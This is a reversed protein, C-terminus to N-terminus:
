SLINQSISGALPLTANSQLFPNSTNLPNYECPEEEPPAVAQQPGQGTLCYREM